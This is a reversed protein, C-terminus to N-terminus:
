ECAQIHVFMQLSVFEALRLVCYNRSNNHTAPTPNTALFSLVM